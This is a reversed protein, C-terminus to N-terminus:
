RGMGELQKTTRGCDLDLGLGVKLVLGSERVPGKAKAKM